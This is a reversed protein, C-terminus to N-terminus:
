KSGFTFIGRWDAPPPNNRYQAIRDLFIQCLISNDCEAALQSFVTQAADWNESRYYTLAQHFRELEELMAPDIVGSKGIVEFIRVADSKGAVRVEDLERYVFGAAAVRSAESVINAVNYFRTLSELRAALNVADGIVSYNLRNSSGLNGAVVLGTNVGVCASLQINAERLSAIIELAATMANATDDPGEIPAGFLAMVADGNYKDVVGGHREIIDSIRSLVKNLETLVQQPPLGECFTTFGRIDSFLVTVIREEGGLEIPNNLLQEAIQRSVVKGLLDRVREKELLGKAMSNVSDSLVGIEDRSNVEVTRAYDGEEIRKVVQALKSVEGNLADQAADAQALAIYSKGTGILRMNDVSGGTVEATAQMGPISKSFVNAMGGGLPYYVGGTGGTAISLNIKEQAYACFALLVGSALLFGRLFRKM